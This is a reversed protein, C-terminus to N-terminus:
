YRIKRKNGLVKKVKEIKLFFTLMDAELNKSRLKFPRVNEYVVDKVAFYAGTSAYEM